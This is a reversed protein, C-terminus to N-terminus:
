RPYQAGDTEMLQQQLWEDQSLMKNKNKDMADFKQEQAKMYEEKSVQGDKNTDMKNMQDTAQKTKPDATAQATAFPAYALAAGIVALVCLRRPTNSKSM